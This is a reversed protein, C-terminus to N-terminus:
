GFGVVGGGEGSQGDKAAEIGGGAADDQGHKAAEARFESLVPVRIVRNAIQFWRSAMEVLRTPDFFVRKPPDKKNPRKMGNTVPAASPM